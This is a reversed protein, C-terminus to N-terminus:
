VTVPLVFYFIQCHVLVYKKEEEGRREEDWRSVKQKSEEKWKKGKEKLKREGKGTTIDIDKGKGERNNEGKQVESGNWKKRENREGEDKGDRRKM